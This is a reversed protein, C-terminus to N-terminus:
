AAAPSRSTRKAAYGLLGFALVAAGFLPASAPLPVASVNISVAVSGAGTSVPGQDLAVQAQYFGSMLFGTSGIDAGYFSLINGDSFNLDFLGKDTDDFFTISSLMIPAISTAALTYSFTSIDTDPNDPTPNTTAFSFSFTQGPATETTSPTASGFLGSGSINVTAAQVDGAFLM